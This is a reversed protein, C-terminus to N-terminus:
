TTQETAPEAPPTEEEATEEATEQGAGKLAVAVILSAAAAFLYPMITSLIFYIMYDLPATPSAVQILLFTIIASLVTFIVAVAGFFMAAKSVIKM